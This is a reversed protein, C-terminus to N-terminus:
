PISQYDVAGYGIVQAFDPKLALVGLPTMGIVFPNGSGDEFYFMTYGAQYFVVDGVEPKSRPPLVDQLQYRNSAPDKILNKMGLVYAAFSPSDFGEAPSFGRLKWPAKQLDYIDLLTESQRPYYSAILKLADEWYGPYEYKSFDTALRLQKSVEDLRNNLDKLQNQLDEKDKEAKKLQAQTDSLVQQSDILTQKTTTLDMQTRALQTKLEDRQAQEAQTAAQISVLQRNAEQIQYGTYWLLLLALIVPILSFAVARRRAKREMQEAQRVLSGWQEEQMEM